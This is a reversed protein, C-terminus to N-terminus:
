PLMFVSDTVIRDITNGALGDVTTYIRVPL